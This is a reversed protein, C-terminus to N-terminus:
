RGPLHRRILLFNWDDRLLAVVWGKNVGEALRVSLSVGEWDKPADDEIQLLWPAHDVDVPTSYVRWRCGYKFGPRMLLGRSNLEGFLNTVKNEVGNIWNVEDERLFKRSLHEVGLLPHLEPTAPALNGRPDILSLRYMTVDMEEDVIALEALMGEKSLGQAWNLLEGMDLNEQTRAWRIVAEPEGSSPHSERHWRLWRGDIPVVKEGANRVVDFAVAKHAFDPNENLREDVWGDAIPIHRHWHCFMVEEDTLVIGGDIPKGLASKQYLRGSLPAPIFWGDEHPEPPHNLRTPGDEGTLGIPRTPRVRPKSRRGGAM